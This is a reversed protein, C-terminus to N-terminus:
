SWFQAMLVSQNSVAEVVPDPVPIVAQGPPSTAAAAKALCRGLAGAVVPSVANGMQM